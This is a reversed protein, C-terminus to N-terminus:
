SRVVLGIVTREIRAKPLKRPDVKLRVGLRYRRKEGTEPDTEYEAFDIAGDRDNLLVGCRQLADPVFNWLSNAYNQPDRTRNTSFWLVGALGIRANRKPVQLRECEAAVYRRWKEKVSHQAQWQWGDYANKSPPLFPLHLRYRRLEGVAATEIPLALEVEPARTVSGDVPNATVNWVRSTAYARDSM